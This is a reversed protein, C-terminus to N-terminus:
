FYRLTQPRNEMIRTKLLMTGKLYKSNINKNM